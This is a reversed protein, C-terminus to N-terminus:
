RFILGPSKGGSRKPGGAFDGGGDSARVSLAGRRLCREFSNRSCREFSNRLCREFFKHAM